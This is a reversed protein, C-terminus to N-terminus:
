KVTCSMPAKRCLPLMLDEQYILMVGRSNELRRNNNNNNNEVLESCSMAPGLYPCVMVPRVMSVCPQGIPVCVDPGLPEALVPGLPVCMIPGLSACSQGMPCVIDLRLPECMVPGLPVCICMCMASGLSVGHSARPICVHNARPVCWSQGLPCVCTQGSPSM